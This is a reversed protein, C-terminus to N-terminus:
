MEHNKGFRDDHQIWLNFRSTFILVNDPLHHSRDATKRSSCCEMSSRSGLALLTNIMLKRTFFLEDGIGKNPPM